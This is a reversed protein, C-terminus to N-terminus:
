AHRLLERLRLRPVFAEVAPHKALFVLVPPVVHCVTIEYRCPPLNRHWDLRFCHKSVFIGILLTVLFRALVASISCNFQL